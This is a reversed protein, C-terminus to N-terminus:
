PQFAKRQTDLGLGMALYGWLYFLEVPHGSYYWGQMTGLSFLLDAATTLLMGISIWEWGKGLTGSGHLFFMMVALFLVGADLTPYAMDFFKTLPDESTVSLPYLLVAIILAVICLGTIAAMAVRTRILAGKFSYLFGVIAIVIPAYGALYFIDAFSPYPIPIQWAVEYITWVLEGLFWLFIGLFLGWGAWAFRGKFGVKTASLYSILATCGSVLVFLIDSSIALTQGWGQSLIYYVAFAVAIVTVVVTRRDPSPM